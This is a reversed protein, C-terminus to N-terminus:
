DRQYKDKRMGDPSSERRAANKNSRRSNRNEFRAKYAKRLKVYAEADNELQNSRIADKGKRWNSFATAIIEIIKALALLFKM